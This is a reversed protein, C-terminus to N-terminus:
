PGERSGGRHGRGQIVEHEPAKLRTHAATATTAASPSQVPGTLTERMPNHIKFPTSTAALAVPLRWQTPWAGVVM